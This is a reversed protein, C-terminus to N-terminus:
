RSVAPTWAPGATKQQAAAIQVLMIRKFQPLSRVAHARADIEVVYARVEAGEPGDVTYGDV